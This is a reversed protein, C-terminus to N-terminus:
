IKTPHLGPRPFSCVPDTHVAARQHQQKMELFLQLDTLQQLVTLHQHVTKLFM